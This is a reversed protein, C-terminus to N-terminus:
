TDPPLSCAYFSLYMIAAISGEKQHLRSLLLQFIPRDHNLEPDYPVGHQETVGPLIAPLVSASLPRIRLFVPFAADKYDM